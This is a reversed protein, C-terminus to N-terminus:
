PRDITIVPSTWSEWNAPNKKEGGAKLISFVV